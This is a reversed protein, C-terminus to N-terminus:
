GRIGYRKIGEKGLLEELSPRRIELERGCNLCVIQPHVGNKQYMPEGCHPCIFGYPYKGFAYGGVKVFRRFKREIRRKRAM